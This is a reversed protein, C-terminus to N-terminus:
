TTSQSMVVADLMKAKADTCCLCWSVSRFTKFLEDKVTAIPGVLNERYANRVAEAAQFTWVELDRSGSLRSHRCGGAHCRSRQTCLRFM